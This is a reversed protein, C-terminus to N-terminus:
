ARTRSKWWCDSRMSGGFSITMRSRRWWSPRRLKRCISRRILSRGRTFSGTSGGMNRIAGRRRMHMALAMAFVRGCGDPGVEAMIPATWEDDSALLNFTNNSKFDAGNPELVFTGVIHGTPETVFATRNWYEKPYARATYLAHGAAATYGGHFDVQRVKETIAQFRFNPSIMRLVGPSWGGVSEYYRNPIPMYVSPCGNATSGFVIGEDSFGIGWTNNSTSRIFELNTGDTDFRYFGQSFRL